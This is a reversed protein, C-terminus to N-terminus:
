VPRAGEKEEYRSLLFSPYDTLNEITGFLLMPFIRGGHDPRDAQNSPIDVPISSSYENIIFLIFIACTYSSRQSPDNCKQFEYILDFIINCKQSMDTSYHNRTLSNLGKVESTPTCCHQKTSINCSAVHRGPIVRSNRNKHRKKDSKRM